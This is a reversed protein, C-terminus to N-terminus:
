KKLVAGCVQLVTGTLVTGKGKIGFCHDVSFLLPADTPPPRPPAVQILLDLLEKLATNSQPHQESGQDAIHQADFPRAGTKCTYLCTTTQNTQHHM